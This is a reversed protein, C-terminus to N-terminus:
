GGWKVFLFLMPFVILIIRATKAPMATPLATFMPSIRNLGMTMGGGGPTSTVSISERADDM